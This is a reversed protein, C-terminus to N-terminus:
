EPKAAQKNRSLSVSFAHLQILPLDLPSPITYPLPVM